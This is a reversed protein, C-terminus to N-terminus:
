RAGADAKAPSQSTDNNGHGSRPIPSTGLPVETKTPDTPNAYMPLVQVGPPMVIVKVGPLVDRVYDGIKKLDLDCLSLDGPTTLVLAYPSLQLVEVKPNMLINM